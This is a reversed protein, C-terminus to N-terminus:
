KKEKRDVENIIGVSVQPFHGEAGSKLKQLIAKLINADDCKSVYDFDLQEVM